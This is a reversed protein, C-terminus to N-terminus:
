TDLLGGRGDRLPQELVAHLMTSGLGEDHQPVMQALLGLDRRILVGEQGQAAEGQQGQWWREQSTVPFRRRGGLGSPSPVLCSRQRSYQREWRNQTHKGGIVSGAKRCM